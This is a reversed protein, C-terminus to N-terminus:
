EKSEIYNLIQKIHHESLDEIFKTYVDSLYELQEENFIEPLDGFNILAEEDLEVKCEELM